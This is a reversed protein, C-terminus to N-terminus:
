RLLRYFKVANTRPLTMQYNTGAVAPSNTFTSWTNGLGTASQLQFGATGNTPWSLIVNSGARAISLAVLVPAMRLSNTLSIQLTQNASLTTDWQFAFTMDGSPETIIQDSLTAPSASNIKDLTIAYVSAEWYNPIPPAVTETMILRKGQQVVKNTAPFSVTDGAWDGDLDFDAYQFLHLTVPSNSLNQLSVNETLDSALSGTAGGKLTFGLTVNLGPYFYNITANSSSLSIGLPPGLSDFSLQPANSGQRLWFWQQYIQQKGDVIWSFMGDQTAPKIQVVSNGDQLTLLGYIFYVLVSSNTVSVLGPSTFYVLPSEAAQHNALTYVLNSFAALGSTGNANISTTGGLTGGGSSSSHVTIPATSNSLANGFSDWIQVVAAPLFYAGDQQRAPFPTLLALQAPAATTIVFPASTAPTLGPASALLTKSGVLNISLDNFTVKGSADTNRTLTGSLVGNGSALSITVPLGNTAVSNGTAADQVQVVMPTLIAGANTGAPGSTIALKNIGVVTLTFVTPGYNSQWLAASPLNLSAFVGSRSGYSVVAFSNSIAPVFGGLWIVNLTGALAANGSISFQGYNNLSSLGNVLTGGSLTLAGNLAVSGQLVMATGANFFPVTITTTGAGASKRVTGANQFYANTYNNNLTQSNQIDWLAGALNQILGYQNNASSYDVELGGTGTWTVTGANTLANWLFKTNSGSINLTANSAINVTGQAYGGSWNATAGGLVTLNGTLTGAWGFVGGVVLNSANLTGGVLTLNTVTGGQFAPGLSVTGGALQLNPIVDNLLTLTGGSLRITGLGSLAPVSTYTFNGGNFNITAGAAANFTGGLTGGGNFTLTQALVTVAGSNYFPISIISTGTGASKRLTGANQFYAGNAYNNYLTQDNQIDWLAGALNQILGYYGITSSYDVELGGTGSWTVTGSNTLANYLYKVSSGTLNLVGNNAVTVPGQVTGGSWNVTAGALVALSGPLNGSWNFTGSVTNNGNLTGALLTLNTISGGQFAPALSVTGGNLQLNPITNNLLTLTGGILQITGPGTFTPPTNYGFSGTNFNITTGTAASFAGEITAGKTFSLTGQQVIVAGSNFFPIAITTTGAGASKRFTGANQFFAGNNFGVTINQSNQADWLAGALNQILGYEANASSYDVELNGTGSWTVTGANTLANWLYKTSNGTLNLVANSAVTVPGQAYGGSWNVTAGGLLSLSGPLTGAWNFTGSVIFNSGSLTGGLLTLNTITGGQFGPALSVIGGTLQLNPIVDNLLTLTGGTLQITGPGTLVPTTTYSFAGINFNISTGAAASFSGGLTGGNNFSLTGQQVIVAGSNFFPITITTTGVAVSKRVTGANQFYAGNASNNYLNQNNQIDWLAGALNQILGYQGNASNYDVELNGGGSWTVTGANTMASWLLKTANGSINLVANSAVSVAGQATGGSWNVTAGGLVTLSGPLTGAWNFIGSVVFNSGNLTSGLLTLNTITGRQFGPGLTVTGGALQLNPIINNLLTLTGGTLQITGSGTLAPATNYTFAGSSFTIFSGSAANFVGEITGGNSFTLTGIQVTVTGSNYFPISIATTSASASKRVTGANQFYAGNNYGNYLTQSNQIDWLAGALNQILGYQGNASNYDVELNGSGTWTVTGANTLTNWLYKQSNGTVNLVANSAVTVPGMAYGNSWNVTAGGLLSLSGPLTGAWNFTGSVMNNGNLTGALLTLNTITGGQFAPGLSVTGGNLQLNPITNSLLTLTGGTLQITGPGTATPPATYGFAGASFNITTGSAASFVGEITGGKTLTCTGQQVTTTGSNYFPVSITTTGAGASKRVTGANQFYAGNAYSNRLNQNNQIDWLGGALNQILGYENASSSYDVELDASGTWTVTGANNLTNWLIKSSSGSINLTGNTAITLPNGTLTGGSWNFQGNFTVPATLNITGASFNVTDTSAPLGAPSWNNTNFWDSSASGTWTFTAASVSAAKLFLSLCLLAIVKRRIPM